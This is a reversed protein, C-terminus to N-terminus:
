TDGGILEFLTKGDAIVDILGNDKAQQANLYTDTSTLKLIDKRPRETFDVLMDDIQKKRALLSKAVRVLSPLSEGSSIDPPLKM